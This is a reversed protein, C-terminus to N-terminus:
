LKLSVVESGPLWGKALRHRYLAYNPLSESAGFARRALASIFLLASPSVEIPIYIMLPFAVAFVFHYVFFEYTQWREPRPEAPAHASPADVTLRILGNRQQLKDPDIVELQSPPM